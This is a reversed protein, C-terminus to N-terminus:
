LFFIHCYLFRVFLQPQEIQSFIHVFVALLSCFCQCQEFVLVKCGMSRNDTHGSRPFGTKTDSDNFFCRNVIDRGNNNVRFTIHTVEAQGIRLETRFVKYRPYFLFRLCFSFINICICLLHCFCPFVPNFGPPLATLTNRPKVTYFFRDVGRSTGGSYRDIDKSRHIGRGPFNKLVTIEKGGIQFTRSYTQKGKDTFICIYQVRRFKNQKGLDELLRPKPSLSHTYLLDNGLDDGRWKTGYTYQGQIIEKRLLFPELQRCLEIRKKGTWIKCKPHLPVSKIYM